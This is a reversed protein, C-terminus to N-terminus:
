KFLGRICERLEPTVNNEPLSDIVLEWIWQTTLARPTFAFKGKYKGNTMVRFHELVDQLFDASVGPAMKTCRVALIKLNKMERAATEDDQYMLAKAKESTEFCAKAAHFLSKQDETLELKNARKPKPPSRSTQVVEKIDVADATPFSQSDATSINSESFENDNVNDNVNDNDNDNVNDNVNDNLLEPSNNEYNNKSFLEDVNNQNNQNNQNNSNNKTTKKANTNGFPAGTKSVPSANNRKPMTRDIMAKMQVWTALEFGALEPEIGHLGYDKIFRFFKLQYEEPIAEIAQELTEGFIFKRFEM